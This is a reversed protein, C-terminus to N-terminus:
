WVFLWSVGKYIGYMMWSLPGPSIKQKTKIEITAYDILHTMNTLKGKLVEIESNIRELEKEVELAAEVNEAKSLLEHYRIRAKDLSEIRINIDRYEDTVDFGSIEKNAVNGLNEILSLAEAQNIIPIRITTKENTQEVIYGDYKKAIQIVKLHLSDAEDTSFTYKMSYIVKRQSFNLQENIRSSNIIDTHCSSLLFLFIIGIKYIFFSKINQKLFEFYYNKNYNSIM